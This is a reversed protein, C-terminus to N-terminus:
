PLVEIEITTELALAGATVTVSGPSSAVIRRRGIAGTQLVYVADSTAEWEASFRGSLRTGGAYPVLDVFMEDGVLLEVPGEVADGVGLEPRRVAVRTAPEVWVHTLDLVLDEELTALVATRGPALATLEHEAVKLINPDVATLGIPPAGGGAIQPVLDLALVSGLAMPRDLGGLQCRLDGSGCEPGFDVQGVAGDTGCGFVLLLPLLRM